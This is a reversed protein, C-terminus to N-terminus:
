KKKAPVAPKQLMDGLVWGDIGEGTVRYWNMGRSKEKEHRLVSTGHKVAGIPNCGGMQGGACDWLTVEPLRLVGSSVGNILMKKPPNPKKAAPQADQALGNAAGLSLSFALAMGLALGVRLKSM